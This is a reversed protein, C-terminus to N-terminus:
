GFSKRSDLFKYLNRKYSNELFVDQISGKDRQFVLWTERRWGM